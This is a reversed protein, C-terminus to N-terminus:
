KELTCEIRFDIYDGSAKTRKERAYKLQVNKFYASKELTTIFDIIAPRNPSSGQLILDRNGEDYSFSSLSIDRPSLEHLERLVDVSSGKIESRTEILEIKKLRDEVDRALPATKEIERDLYLIRLQKDHIKKALVASFLLIIGLFLISIRKIKKKSLKFEQKARLVTPMLNLRKQKAELAARLVRLLTIETKYQVDSIEKQCDLNKFPEAIRCPLNLEAELFSALGEIAGATEGLLLRNVNRTKEQRAYGEITLRIEQALKNKLDPYNQLQATGFTLGRTFDLHSNYSIVIDTNDIDLDILISSDKSEEQEFARRYWDLIAETSFTIREPELGAKKLVGLYSNIVDQHVIVLVVKAYGDPTHETILYDSIIEEKPFPIEKASQLKVMGKIEKENVSPFRLFRVTVKHRPISVTLHGPQGEVEKLIDKFASLQDKESQSALKKVILKVIKRKGAFDQAAAFKIFGAEIELGTFVGKNKRLMKLM